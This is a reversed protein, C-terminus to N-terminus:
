IIGALQSFFFYTGAEVNLSGPIESNFIVSGLVAYLMVLIIALRENLLQKALLVGTAAPVIYFLQNTQTTYLSVIKMLSIVIVSILLISIVKGRDLQRKRAMLNIEHGIISVILLIFISLGIVRYINREENLLGALALEEYLENTITQGERVIGEGARIVAPEVRSAAEKRADMTKDPDYFANEVIAFDTLGELVKVLHNDLDTYEMTQKVEERATQINE